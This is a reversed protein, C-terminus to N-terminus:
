CTIRGSWNAAMQTCIFLNSIHQDISVFRFTSAYLKRPDFGYGLHNIVAVNNVYFWNTLETFVGYRGYGGLKPDMSLQRDKNGDITMDLISVRETQFSRVVGSLRFVPSNDIVKLTTARMGAGALCTYSPMSIQFKIPYLGPGLKVTGGPPNRNRLAKLASNIRGSYDAVGPVFPVSVTHRECIALNGRPNFPQGKRNFTSWGLTKPLDRWDGLKTSPTGVKPPQARVARFFNVCCVCCLFVLLPHAYFHGYGFVGM